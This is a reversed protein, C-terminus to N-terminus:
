QAAAARVAAAALAGIGAWDRDLISPRPAMFIGGAAFVNPLALYDRVNAASVGGTPCFRVDPFLPQMHGLWSPGGLLDAPFFKQELFGYERAALVESPTVAGPVFPLGVKQAAEALLPTLGPSVLFRAGAERAAAFHKPRTLTGAGVVAQSARRTMAEIVQLAQPTRLTVEIAAIGAEELADLLPEADEVRDVQLIAILPTRGALLASASPAAPTTEHQVTQTM